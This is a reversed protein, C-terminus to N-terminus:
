DEDTNMSHTLGNRRVKKVGRERQHARTKKLGFTDSPKHRPHNLNSPYVPLDVVGNCQELSLLFGGPVIPMAETSHIYYATNGM